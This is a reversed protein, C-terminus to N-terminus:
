KFLTIVPIFIFSVQLTDNLGVEAHTLQLKQSHFSSMQGLIRLSWSSIIPAWGKPNWKILSSLCDYITGVEAQDDIVRHKKNAVETNAQNQAKIALHRTISEDLTNCFFFLVAERSAPLNKILSTATKVLQGTDITDNRQSKSSQNSSFNSFTTVGILFSKLDNLIEQQNSTQTM